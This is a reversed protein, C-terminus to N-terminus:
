FAARIEFDVMQQTPSKRNTMYNVVAQKVSASAKLSNAFKLATENDPSQGILVISGSGRNGSIDLSTLVIGQPASRYIESLLGLKMRGAALSSELLAAKAANKQIDAARGEIKKIEEKVAALYESKAKVKFFVINAALSINLLVLIGLYLLSRQRTEKVKHAKLEKPLVNIRLVPSELAMGKAAELGADIEVPVSLRNELDKVFEAAPPIKGAVILKNVEKTQAGLVLLTRGLEKLFDDRSAEDFPIARSSELRNGRVSFVDAFGDDFNVVAFAPEPLNRAAIQNFLSVSSVCVEDPVLGAHKLLSFRNAVLDRPAAALLVSAYGDDGKSMVAHDYVMEEPRAPFLDNFDLELMQRIETDSTAPLTLFRVAVDTRPLGLVLYEPVIKNEKLFSKILNPIQEKKHAALSLEKVQPHAQNEASEVFRVLHETIYIVSKKVAM